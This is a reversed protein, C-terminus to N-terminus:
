KYFLIRKTTPIKSQVQVQTYVTNNKGYQRSIKGHKGISELVIFIISKILFNITLTFPNFSSRKKEFKLNIM